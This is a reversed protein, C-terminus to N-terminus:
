FIKAEKLIDVFMNKYRLFDQQTSEMIISVLTDNKYLIVFFNSLMRGYKDTFTFETAYGTDEGVKIPTNAFAMIVSKSTAIGDVYRKLFENAVELPESAKLKITEKANSVKVIGIGTLYIDGPKEVKEKSIFLQYVGQSAHEKVHWDIPYRLSVNYASNEFEKMESHFVEKPLDTSVPEPIFIDKSEPPKVDLKENYSEFKNTQRINLKASSDVRSGSMDVVALKPLYSSSNIYFRITSTYRSFAFHINGFDPVDTYELVVYNIDELIKEEISTPKSKKMMEYIQELPGLEKIPGTGKVWEQQAWKNTDPMLVYRKDKIFLTIEKTSVTEVTQKQMAPKVFELLVSTKDGSIDTESLMKYSSVQQIAKEFKEIIADYNQESYAITVSLFIFLIMMYLKKM